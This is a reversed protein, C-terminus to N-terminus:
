VLSAVRRFASASLVRRPLSISHPPESVLILSRWIDAITPVM